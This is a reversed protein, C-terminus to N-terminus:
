SKIFKLVLFGICVVSIVVISFVKNNLKEEEIEIQINSILDIRNEPAEIKKKLREEELKQNSLVFKYILEINEFIKPFNTEMFIVFFYIFLLVSLFFLIFNIYVIIFHDHANIYKEKMILLNKIYEEVVSNIIRIM